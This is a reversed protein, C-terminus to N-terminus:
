EEEKFIIIANEEAKQVENKFEEISINGVYLNNALDYIKDILWKDKKNQNYQRILEDQYKEFDFSMVPVDLLWEIYKMIQYKDKCVQHMLVTNFTKYKEYFAKMFKWLRQHKIFHKDEVRIKDMLEPKLLLCALLNIELDYYYQM